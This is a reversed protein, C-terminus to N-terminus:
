MPIVRGQNGRQSIKINFDMHMDGEDRKGNKSAEHSPKADKYRHYLSLYSPKSAINPSFITDIFWTNLDLPLSKKGKAM